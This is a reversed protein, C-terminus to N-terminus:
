RRGKNTWRPDEDWLCKQEAQKDDAPMGVPCVQLRFFYDQQLSNLNTVRFQTLAQKGNKLPQLNIIGDPGPPILDGDPRTSAAFELRSTAQLNCDLTAKDAGLCIKFRTFEWGQSGQLQFRAVLVTNIESVLCGLGEARGQGPPCKINGRNKFKLAPPNGEVALMLRPGTANADNEEDGVIELDKLTVSQCAAALMFLPVLLLVRLMRM